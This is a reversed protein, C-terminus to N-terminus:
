HFAFLIMIVRYEQIAWCCFFKSEVWLQFPSMSPTKRLNAPVLAAFNPRKRRMLTACLVLPRPAALHGPALRRHRKLSLGDRGLGQRLIVGLWWDFGHTSFIIIEQGQMNAYEFDFDNLNIYFLDKGERWMLQKVCALHQKTLLGICPRTFTHHALKNLHM